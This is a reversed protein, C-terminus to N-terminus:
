KSWYALAGLVVVTHKEFRDNRCSRASFCVVAAIVVATYKESLDSGCVIGTVSWHGRRGVASGLGTPRM